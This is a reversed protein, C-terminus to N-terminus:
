NRETKPHRMVDVSKLNPDIKVVAMNEGSSRFDGISGLQYVNITDFLTYERWQHQHGSFIALIKDKHVAAIEYFRDNKDISMDSFFISQLTLSDPTDMDKAPPHHCFLIAPEPRNLLSELWDMQEPDFSGQCLTESRFGLCITFLSDGRNSNLFIMQIGKHIFSYYPDINLVKKWVAEVSEPNLTPVHDLTTPDFGVYYDHNGLAIHYPLILHDFLRKFVEPPTDGRGQYDYPNESFLCGVLDGTVAVFDAHAYNENMLDVALMLNALNRQNNFFIDDPNGPVRLHIDSVVVIEFPKTKESINTDTWCGSVTVSLFVM